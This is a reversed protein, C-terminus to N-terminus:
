ENGNVEFIHLRSYLSKRKKAMPIAGIISTRKGFCRLVAYRLVRYFNVFILLIKYKKTIPYLSYSSDNLAKILYYLKGKGIGSKGRDSIMMGSKARKKDKKGFNGGSLIDELLENLLKDDTKKMWAPTNVSFLKVSLATIINAFEFLGVKKLLPIVKEKWFTMNYTKHVFYSWDMLHRLGIGEGLMHHQMHLLLVVAHYHHDPAFFDQGCCNILVKNEIADSMYERIIDGTKGYPIGAIEFHMELHSRPKTFVIHCIHEEHSVTYGNKILIEKIESKKNPQILFDVDGLARLEPKDYYAAASLGKLIIYPYNRNSLIKTLENQSKEVLSNIAMSGYTHNFWSTYIDKPIENKLQTASDFAIISVTQAISEKILSMWDIDDNYIVKTGTISHALLNILLLQEKTM